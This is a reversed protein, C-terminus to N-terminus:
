KSCSGCIWTQGRLTAKDKFDHKGCRRKKGGDDSVENGCEIVEGTPMYDILKELMASRQDGLAGGQCRSVIFRVQEEIGQQIILRAENKKMEFIMEDLVGDDDEIGANEMRTIIEKAVVLQYPNLINM